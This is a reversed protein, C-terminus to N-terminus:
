WVAGEGAPTTGRRAAYRRAVTLALQHRVDKELRELRVSLSRAMRLLWVLLGLLARGQLALAAAMVVLVDDPSVGM